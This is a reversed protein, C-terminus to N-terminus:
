ARHASAPACKKPFRIHPCGKRRSLIIMGCFVLSVAALLMCVACMANVGTSELMSGSWATAIMSAVCGFAADAVGHATTRLYPMLRYGFLSIVIGSILMTVAYGLTGFTRSKAGDEVHHTVTIVWSDLTTAIPGNM